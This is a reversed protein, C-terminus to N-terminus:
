GRIECKLVDWNSGEDPQLPNNSFNKIIDKVKKVYVTDKLLASNFKFFGRGPKQTNEIKLEFYVLSHDSKIGPTIDQRVFDYLLHISILFYDLRSQVLGTKTMERRTFRRIEPNLYRWIDIM